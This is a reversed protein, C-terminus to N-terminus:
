PRTWWSTTGVLPFYSYWGEPPAKRLALPIKSAHRDINWRMALVKDLTTTKLVVQSVSTAPAMESCIACNM